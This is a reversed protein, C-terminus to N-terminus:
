TEPTLLVRLVCGSIEDSSFRFRSFSIQNRGFARMPIDM